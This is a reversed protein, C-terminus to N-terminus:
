RGPTDALLQFEVVLTGFQGAALAGMRAEGGVGQFEGTGGSVALSGVPGSNGTVTLKGRAPFDFVGLMVSQPAAGGGYVWGSSRFRGVPAANASLTTGSVDADRYFSGTYYAPGTPAGAGQTAQRAFRAQAQDIVIIYRELWENIVARGPPTTGQAAAVGSGLVAASALAAGGGAALLRRRSVREM